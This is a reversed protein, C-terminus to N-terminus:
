LNVTDLAHNYFESSLVNDNEEVIAPEANIELDCGDSEEKILPSKLPDDETVDEKKVESRASNM